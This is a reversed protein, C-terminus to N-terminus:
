GRKTNKSRRNDLRQDEMKRKGEKQFSSKEWATNKKKEFVRPDKEKKKKQSSLYNVYILVGIKFKLL